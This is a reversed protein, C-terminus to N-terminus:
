ENLYKARDLGYLIEVQTQLYKFQLSWKGNDWAITVDPQEPGERTGFEIKSVAGERGTIKSKVRLGVVLEGLPCDAITM